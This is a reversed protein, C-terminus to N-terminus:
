VVGLGKAGGVGAHFAELSGCALVDGAPVGGGDLEERALAGTDDFHVIGREACEDRM